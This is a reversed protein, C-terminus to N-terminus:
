KIRIDYRHLRYTREIVLPTNSFFTFIQKHRERDTWVYCSGFKPKYYSDHGQLPNKVKLKIISSDLPYSILALLHMSDYITCQVCRIVAVRKPWV